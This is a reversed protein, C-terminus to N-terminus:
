SNLHYLVQCDLILPKNASTFTANKLLNSEEGHNWRALTYDDHFEVGTFSIVRIAFIKVRFQGSARAFIAHM